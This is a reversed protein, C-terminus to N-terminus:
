ITKPQYYEQSLRWSKLPDKKLESYFKNGICVICNIRLLAMAQQRQRPEVETKTDTVLGLYDKLTLIREIKSVWELYDIDNLKEEKDIKLSFEGMIISFYKIQDSLQNYIRTM